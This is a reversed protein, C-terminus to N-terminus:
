AEEEVAARAETRVGRTVAKVTHPNVGTANAIEATGMGRAKLTQIGADRVERAEDAETIRTVRLAEAERVRAIM